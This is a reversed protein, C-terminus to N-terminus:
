GRPSSRQIFVQGTAYSLWVRHSRLFDNGLLGDAGSLRIPDVSILMRRFKEPGIVVDSFVHWHGTSSLQNIGFGSNALAGTLAAADVGLRGAASESLVAVDGGSDLLLTVPQGQIQIPVGFFSSDPLRAHQFDSYPEQWPIYRGNCRQEQYLAIRHQPVDIEVEFRSLWDAGVLGSESRGPSLQTVPFHQDWMEQGGSSFSRVRVEPGFSLGGVGSSQYHRHPDTELQLASVATPTVMTQDAATDLLMTVPKDDIMAPVTLQGGSLTVPIEAVHQVTCALPPGACAALLPLCVLPYRFIM